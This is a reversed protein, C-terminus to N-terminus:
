KNDTPKYSEAIKAAVAAAICSSVETASVRDLIEQMHDKLYQEAVLKPVTAAIEDIIDKNIYALVMHLVYQNSDLTQSITIENAMSNM